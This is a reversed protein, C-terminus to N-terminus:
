IQIRRGRRWWIKQKEEIDREKMEGEMLPHQNILLPRALSTGGMSRQLRFLCGVVRGVPFIHAHTHTTTTTPPYSFSFSTSVALFSLSASCFSHPFDFAGATNFSLATLSEWVAGHTNIYILVDSKSRLVQISVNKGCWRCVRVYWGQRLSKADQLTLSAFCKTKCWVKPLLKM